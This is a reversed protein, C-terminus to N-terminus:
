ISASKEVSCTPVQNGGVEHQTQVSVNGFAYTPSLPGSALLGALLCFLDFNSRIEPATPTALVRSIGSGNYLITYNCTTHRSQQAIVLLIM